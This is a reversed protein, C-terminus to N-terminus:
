HKNYAAQSQGDLPKDNTLNAKNDYGAPVGVIVTPQYATQENADAVHETKSVCNLPCRLPAKYSTDGLVLM